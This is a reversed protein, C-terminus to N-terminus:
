HLAKTRYGVCGEVNDTAPVAEVSTVSKTARFALTAAPREL